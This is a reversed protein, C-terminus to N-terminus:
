WIPVDRLIWSEFAKDPFEIIPLLLNSLKTPSDGIPFLLKFDNFYHMNLIRLIPFRYAIFRLPLCTSFFLEVCTIRGIYFKLYELVFSSPLTRLVESQLDITEGAPVRMM